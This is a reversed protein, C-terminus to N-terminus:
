RLAFMLLALVIVVNLLWYLFSLRRRIPLKALGDTM